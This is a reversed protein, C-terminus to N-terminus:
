DGLLCPLQLLTSGETVSYQSLTRQEELQKGGLILRHQEVGPTSDIGLRKAIKMKLQRVTDSAGAEIVLPKEGSSTKIFLQMKKEGKSRPGGREPLTQM